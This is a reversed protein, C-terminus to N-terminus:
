SSSATPGVNVRNKWGEMPKRDFESYFYLIRNIVYQILCRMVKGGTVNPIEENNM